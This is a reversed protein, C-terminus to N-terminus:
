ALMVEIQGGDLTMTETLLEVASTVVTGCALRQSTYGPTLSEGVLHRVEEM